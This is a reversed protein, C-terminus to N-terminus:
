EFAKKLKRMNKMIGFGFKKKFKKGIYMMYAAFEEIKKM